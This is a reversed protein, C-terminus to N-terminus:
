QVHRATVPDPDLRRGWLAHAHNPHPGADALRYGYPPRGGLHRGQELVQACMAARVRHRARLVERRSQAGLMLVLARHAPDTLHLPGDTEPLWLQVGHRQLQDGFFAREYEGVVVADFERDPDALAALL